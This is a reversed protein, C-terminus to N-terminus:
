RGSRNVPNIRLASLKADSVSRLQEESMGQMSLIGTAFSEFTDLSTSDVFAGNDDRTAWPTAISLTEIVFAGQWALTRSVQEIANPGGTTGASMVGCPREYLSGSGIMWDLANKAAGAAGGGFEPSALVIADVSEFVTRMAAVTPPAVDVEEARFAPISAVDGAEVCVVGHLELIAAIADLAARNAGSQNTAGCFLAVRMPTVSDNM